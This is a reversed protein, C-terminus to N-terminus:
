PREIVATCVCTCFARFRGAQTKYDAQTAISKSTTEMTQSIYHGYTEPKKPKNTTFMRELM